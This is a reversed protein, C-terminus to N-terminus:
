FNPLCASGGRRGGEKRRDTRGEKRRNQTEREKQSLKVTNILRVGFEFHGQRFRQTSPNCINTKMGLLLM